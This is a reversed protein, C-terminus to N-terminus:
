NSKKILSKNIVHTIKDKLAIEQRDKRIYYNWAIISTLFILVTAVAVRVLYPVISIINRIRYNLKLLFNELHGDPPRYVNFKDKNERIFSEISEENLTKM